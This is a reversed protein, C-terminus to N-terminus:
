LTDLKLITVQSLRRRASVTVGALTPRLSSFPSSSRPNPREKSLRNLRAGLHAWGIVYTSIWSDSLNVTIDYRRKEMMRMTDHEMLKEHM